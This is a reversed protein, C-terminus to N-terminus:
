ARVTTAQFHPFKTYSALGMLDLRLRPYLWWCRGRSRWQSRRERCGVGGPPPEGLDEAAVVVSYGTMHRRFNIFQTIRSCRLCGKAGQVWSRGQSKASPQPRRLMRVGADALLTQGRGSCAHDGFSKQSRVGVNGPMRTIAPMCDRMWSPHLFPPKRLLSGMGM